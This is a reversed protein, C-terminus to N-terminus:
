TFPAQDVGCIYGWGLYVRLKSTWIDFFCTCHRLSSSSINLGPSKLKYLMGVVRHLAGDIAWLACFLHLQLHLTM